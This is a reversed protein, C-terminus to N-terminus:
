SIPVGSFGVVFGVSTTESGPGVVRYPVDAIISDVEGSKTKLHISIVSQKPWSSRRM